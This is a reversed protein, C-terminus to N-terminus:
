GIEVTSGQGDIEDILEVRCIEVKAVPEGTEIKLEFLETEVKPKPQSHRGKAM